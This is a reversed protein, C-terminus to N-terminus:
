SSHAAPKYAMFGDITRVPMRMRPATAMVPRPLVPRAALASAPRRVVFGDVPRPRAPQMPRAPAAVQRQVATTPQVPQPVVAPQIVFPQRARRRRNQLWVLVVGIEYMVIMPLAFLVQNLVDPTPSMIAAALFSAVIVYRQSKGLGGPKFPTMTNIIRLFLPIQFLLAAGLLYTMVFTLYSDVTLMAQINNLDM